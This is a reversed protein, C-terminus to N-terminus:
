TKVIWPVMVGPPMNQHAGGSGDATGTLPSDTPVGSGVTFGGGGSGGGDSQFPITVPMDAQEAATLTHTEEGGTAGITKGNIGSGAATVLGAASTFMDDLGFATKGRMDIVNFTTSGNGDGHPSFVATHVGSQTGSTNLDSGGPTTSLKFTNATSSKIYYTTGATIGTPLAGTTKFKIPWNDRLGHANWTVVCPSAITMTATGTKNTAAYLSAYTTRNQAAGNAWLWGGAPLAFGSYSLVTGAPVAAATAGLLADVYSKPVAHGPDTPSGNLTLEGTMTDGAINVAGLTARMTAVDPDDLLTRAAATLDAVDFTDAGTAYILKNAAVVLAALATLTADAAQKETDLEVIADQVNTSSVNGAPTFAVSGATTLSSLSMWKGAALDSAFVGATHPIVCFYSGGAQTVFDGRIYTALSAWPGRPTIGNLLAIVETKLEDIGVSGSLLSGDDQRITALCSILSSVTAKLRDFDTDLDAGNLPTDPNEAQFDSYDRYREYPTPTTL